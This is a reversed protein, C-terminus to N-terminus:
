FPIRYKESLARAGKQSTLEEIAETFGAQIAGKIMANTDIQYYTSSDAVKELATIKRMLKKAISPREVYWMSVFFGKAFPAACIDYIFEGKVVHLYERRAGLLGSESYNVRSFKVGPIERRTICEQVKLYFEEAGFEVGDFTHQWHNHNEVSQSIWYYVVLLIALSLLVVFIM